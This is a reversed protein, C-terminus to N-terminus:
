IHLEKVLITLGFIEFALKHIWDVDFNEAPTWWIEKPRFWGRSYISSPVFLINGIYRSDHPQVNYEYSKLVAGLSGDWRYKNGNITLYTIRKDINVNFESKM